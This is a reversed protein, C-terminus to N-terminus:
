QKSFIFILKPEPIMPAHMADDTRTHTHFAIVDLVVEHISKFKQLQKSNLYPSQQNNGSNKFLGIALSLRSGAKQRASYMTM